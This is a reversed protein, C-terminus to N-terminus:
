EERTLGDGPHNRSRSNENDWAQRVNHNIANAVVLYIDDGHQVRCMAATTSSSAPRAIFPNSTVLDSRWCFVWAAGLTSAGGVPTCVASTLASSAPM